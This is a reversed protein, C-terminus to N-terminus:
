GYGHHQQGMVQYAARNMKLRAKAIVGVTEQGEIALGDDGYEIRRPNRELLLDRERGESHWRLKKGDMTEFEMFRMDPRSRGGKEISQVNGGSHHVTPGMIGNTDNYGLLQLGKIQDGEKMGQDSMDYREYLGKMEGPRYKVIHDMSRHYSPAPYKMEPNNEKWAPVEVYLGEKDRKIFQHARGEKDFHVGEPHDTLGADREPGEAHWNVRRPNNRDLKAFSRIGSYIRGENDLTSDKWSVVRDGPKLGGDRMDLAKGVKAVHGPRHRTGNAEVYLGEEDREVVYSNLLARNHRPHQKRAEAKEAELARRAESPPAAMDNM